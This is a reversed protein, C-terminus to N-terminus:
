HHACVQTYTGAASAQTVCSGNASVCMTTPGSFSALSPDVAPASATRPNQQWCTSRHSSPRAILVCLHLSRVSILSTPHLYVALTDLGSLKRLAPHWDHPDLSTDQVWVTLSRLHSSHTAELGQCRHLISPISLSEPLQHCHNCTNTFYISGWIGSSFSFNDHHNTATERNKSFLFKQKRVIFQIELFLIDLWRRKFNLM